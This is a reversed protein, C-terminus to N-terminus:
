ISPGSRASITLITPSLSRTRWPALAHCCAKKMSPPLLRAVAKGRPTIVIEEGAKARRVFESLKARAEAISVNEAEQSRLKL